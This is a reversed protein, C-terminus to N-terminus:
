KGKRVPRLMDRYDQYARAVNTKKGVRGLARILGDLAELSTPSAAVARSYIEVAQASFGLQAALRGATLFTSIAGSRITCAIKYNEFAKTLGARSADTKEWAKGLGLAAPYSIPDAKLAAQYFERASKYAGKKWAAEAKGIAAACAASDRKTVGPRDATTRAITEKLAPIITRQVKQVRPSASAELRVFIEFQELAAEAYGFGDRYLLGLHYWASANRRDLRIAKLFAIRALHANNCTMEVIGLGAFAQARIGADHKADSALSAFDAAANAYDKMHWAIQAGLLVVDTDGGATVAAKEVLEKAAALEGLDLKVRALLILRDVNAPAAALSKEFCKEAKKLDRVEYAAKGNDLDATGDDPGCGLVAALLVALAGNLASSRSFSTM